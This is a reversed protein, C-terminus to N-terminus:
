ALTISCCALRLRGTINKISNGAVTAHQCSKVKDLVKGTLGARVFEDVNHVSKTLLESLV